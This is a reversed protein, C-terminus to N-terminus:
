LNRDYWTFELTASTLGSEVIRLSNANPGLFFMETRKPFKISNNCQTRDELYVATQADCDIEIYQGLSVVKDVDFFIGQADNYIRPKAHVAGQESSSYVLQPLGASRLVLSTITQVEFHHANGKRGAIDGQLGFGVYTRNGLGVGVKSWATWAAAAGPSSISSISSLAMEASGGYIGCSDCFDDSERRVDGNTTINDFGAPHYLYAFAYYTDPRPSGASGYPKASFGLDTAPDAEGGHTATYYTVNKGWRTVQKFQCLRLGTEDMFETYNRSANTSGSISFMPKRSENQVVATEFANNYTVKYYHEIPYIKTGKTHTVKTSGFLGRIVTGTFTRTWKDVETFSFVESDISVMRIGAKYIKELKDWDQVAVEISAIDGAGTIQLNLTLEMAGRYDCEVFCKSNATNLNGLWFPVPKNNRYVRVDNGNALMKSNRIVANDAAGAATTGGWGRGTVGGVNYVAMNGGSISTYYIQEGTSPIYCMGGSTSLGGGVATDVPITLDGALIGGVKNVQNSKTSDSILSATDWAANMIDLADDMIPIDVLPNRWVRYIQAGAGETKATNYKLKIVPRSFHNGLCTVTKTAGTAVPTWSDTNAVVTKWIPDPVILRITTRGVEVFPQMEPRAWLYWQRSSDDLDKIVLKKLSTNRTDFWQNIEDIKDTFNTGPAFSIVLEITRPKIEVDAIVPAHGSRPLLKSITEGMQFYNTNSAFTARYSGSNIANGDWTYVEPRM